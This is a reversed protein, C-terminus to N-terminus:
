ALGEIFVGKYLEKELVYEFLGFLILGLVVSVGLAMTLKKGGFLYMSCFTYVVAAPILGICYAMAVFATIWGAASLVSKMGPQNAKEADGDDAPNDLGVIVFLCTMLMFVSAWFPIFASVPGYSSGIYLTGVAFGTLPVLLWFNNQDIKIKM